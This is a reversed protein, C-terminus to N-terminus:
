QNEVLRETAEIDQNSILKDPAHEARVTTEAERMRDARSAGCGACLAIASVWAPFAALRMKM